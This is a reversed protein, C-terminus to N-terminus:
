KYYNMAGAFIPFNKNGSVNQMNGDNWREPHSMQGLVRGDASCLAEVAMYAGSPNFAIDMSPKGSDDVYQGTIQGQAALQKLLGVECVFRGESHSFAMTHIDGVNVLSLWPSLTSAVRVHVLKSQHRGITNAALAPSHASIDCVQGHPLLGLKLLGQFGSGVGLVLGDREQLLQRLAEALRPHRFFNAIFKGCGEAEGGGYFDGPLALIQSKKLECAMNEISEALWAPSLNRIVTIQPDAGARTFAQALDYEGTSGPLAPILVKPQTICINAKALSTPTFSISPINETPQIINTPFVDELRNEYIHELESLAVTEDKYRLEYPEVTHGIPLGIEESGATLELLFSGYCNGFLENEDLGPALQLGLGNGLCMKILGAAVGGCTPTYAALLKGEHILRAVTAFNKKLGDAKPLGFADYAPKLLTIRNGAQKFEPSIIYATDALAVAFSVLTPPVDIHEFSGSMSDKGGIAALGLDLQASLAGLLAALPLGWREPSKGLKPFFEQFSLWCHGVDGGTAVLKAVSEVVALYAGNYPSASSIEPNYGYSMVTCSTTEGKLVPLKAAMAQIPTLQRRGGLPLLVTGAGATSDFREGIGRQSCENLDALLLRLKDALTGDKAPKQFAQGPLVTAPQYKKTGNSDLFARAIDAIVQGQWSIIMRQSDTVRAVTTAQLGEAQALARFAEVDRDAIVVAMREQSESIALETGSMGPYKVPVADVDIDLGGALEGIAVSVGGAGFDNCRKILRTAKPNRFLRLIKREEPANGKQVEAGLTALASTDQTKSSGTAGGCGDRGTLGGVLLVKDGPLPKERKVQAAPAAAVVAGAEMRKAVYGPHYIEVGLGAAVGIQNIYSSHGAAAITTLKRQPLKGPLTESLPITPDGAGSIRMAQYPYGRGSLPDRLGGGLCTSAGGFPEIETPHNHTENKFFLLWPEKEGAVEVDVKVTCANVEESEELHPLQGQRRLYRAAITAIDMLTVPKEVGLEQRLALYRSYAAAAQQDKLKLETLETNFTTHRCHDSWYTDIIRLEAFTPCRGESSFHQQCLLLDGLDMALGYEQTLAKLANEDLQLFGEMIPVPETLPAAIALTYPLVLSAERCEVPNILYKKVTEIDPRSIDGYLLFIIATAVPPREAQSIFQICQACSDALQDFQGPLLERAIVAAAGKPLETLCDELPPESFVTDRCNAFLEASIGEVDYRTLIRLGSLGEIGLLGRFEGLLRAAEQAFPPKKEVYIRHIM